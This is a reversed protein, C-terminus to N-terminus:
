ITMLVLRRTQTLQLRKKKRNQSKRQRQPSRKAMRKKAMKVVKKKKRKRKINDFFEFNFYILDKLYFRVIFSVKKPTSAQKASTSASKAKNPNALNAALEKVQTEEEATLKREDVIIDVLSLGKLSEEKKAKNIVKQQADKEVKSLMQADLKAEIRQGIPDPLYENKIGGSTKLSSASKQGKMATASTKKIVTEIDEREKADFKELQERFETLDDLWLQEVTKARIAKLEQNKQRQQKLIEEKKELTLNWIPMSLLYNFDNTAPEVDGDQNDATTSSSTTSEFFSGKEKIVREKWVRVPDSQYSKEALMKVLAEKKMNEVKIKGEIKEVIFRAINDLKASEAGLMRELYDKRKEYYNFRIKFFEELIEM